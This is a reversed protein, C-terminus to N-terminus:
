LLGAASNDPITTPEPISYYTRDYISEGGNVTLIASQGTCLDEDSSTVTILEPTPDIFVHAYAKSVCGNNSAEYSYLGAADSNFSSVGLSTGFAWTTGNPRTWFDNTTNTSTAVLTGSAGECIHLTDTLTITPNETQYSATFVDTLGTYICTTILQITSSETLTYSLHPDTTIAIGAFNTQGYDAVSWQYEIGFTNAPLNNATLYLEDGICPFVLPVTSSFLASNTFNSFSASTCHVPDFEDAGIDPNSLNRSDCDLDTTIYGIPYGGNQLVDNESASSETHLGNSWSIAPLVQYSNGDLGSESQWDSLNDFAMADRLGGAMVLHHTSSINAYLANNNVDVGNYGGNSSSFGLAMAYAPEDAALPANLNSIFINNKVELPFPSDNQVMLASWPGSDTGIENYVFGNTVSNHVISLMSNPNGYAFIGAVYDDHGPIGDTGYISNNSIINQGIEGSNIIIGAISNPITNECDKIKNGNVYVDVCSNAPPGNLIQPNSQVGVSIGANVLETGSIASLDHIYNSEIQIGSENLVLIGLNGIQYPATSSGIENLRIINDFNRNSETEGASFIGCRVGIILNNEILNSNNVNGRSDFNLENGCSAIGFLTKESEIGQIICNKITNNTPGDNSGTTRLWVVGTQTEVATLTITMNRTALVEPCVTNSQGASNGDITVYDAGNLIFPVNVGDAASILVDVGSAPRITLQTYPSAMPNAEIILSTEFFYDADVFEFIVHSTLCAVNYADIADHPTAFDGGSGVTYTGGLSIPQSITPPSTPYTEIFNVSYAVGNNAPWFAVNPVMQRDQAVVFYQIIDGSNLGGFDTEIIDFNWVSNFENGSVLSGPNSFWSGANKRYYIHPRNLSNALSPIYPLGGADTIIVGSLYLNNNGCQVIIPSANITPATNDIIPTFDGEDAGIDPLFGGGNIQLSLPYNGAIRSDPSDYDYNIAPIHAANSEVHSPISSNIHLFDINTGTTSLFQPQEIFSNSETSNLANYIQPITNYSNTGDFLICQSPDANNSYFLNHNSNFGHNIASSGSRRYAASTSGGTAATTNSIINNKLDVFCNTHVFLSAASFGGGNGVTHLHITNYHIESSISNAGQYIGTVALDNQANPAHLSGIINNYIESTGDRQLIGYVATSTANSQLSHIKNKVIHALSAATLKIGVVTDNASTFGGIENQNIQYFSPSSINIGAISGSTYFSTFFNNEITGYGSVINPKVDIATIDASNNNYINSFNNDVYQASNPTNKSAFLVINNTVNPSMSVISNNLVTLYSQYAVDTELFTLSDLTGTNNFADSISNNSIHLTQVNSNSNAIEFFTLKTASIPGLNSFVNTHWEFQVAPALSSVYTINGTSGTPTHIGRFLNTNINVQSLSAEAKIQVLFSNASTATTFNLFNPTGFTNNEITLSSFNANSCLIGSFGCQSSGIQINSFSNNLLNYSPIAGSINNDDIEIISFEGNLNLSLEDFTNNLFFVLPPEGTFKVLSSNSSTSNPVNIFWDQFTNGSINLGYISNLDFGHVDVNGTFDTDIIQIQNTTYTSNGIFNNHIELGFQPDRACIAAFSLNNCLPTASILIGSFYNNSITSAYVNELYIANIRNNGSASASTIQVSSPTSIEGIINPSTTGVNFSGNFLEIASFVGRLDTPDTKGTTVSLNAILTGDVSASTNVPISIHIPIFTGNASTYITTGTQNPNNYGVLNEYLLFNGSSQTSIHIGYHTDNSIIERPSTQFFHNNYFSWNSNHMGINIASSEQNAVFWDFFTCNSITTFQNEPAGSTLDNSNLLYKPTSTGPGFQCSEITCNGSGTSFGNLMNFVGDSQSSGYIKTFLFTTYESDDSLQITSGASNNNQITLFINSGSGSIRGDIVTQDANSLLILPGGFNGTISVNNAPRIEVQSIGATNILACTQTEVVSQIIAVQIVGTHLSNTNIADFASKLSSYGTTQFALAGTTSFVQIPYNPVSFSDSGSMKLTALDHAIQGHNTVDNLIAALGKNSSYAYFNVTSGIPINSLYIQGSIGFFPVMVIGSTLFGDTSYRVYVNEGSSLPANLAVNVQYQGFPLASHSIGTFNKPNYNTQLIQFHNNNGAGNETINFTYYRGLTVSATTGSAGGNSSNYLASGTGGVPAIVTNFAVAGTGSGYPRWVDGPYGCTSPFEWTGSGTVGAQIRAQRFAGMDTLATCNFGAGVINNTGLAGPQSKAVITFAVLILGSLAVSLFRFLM